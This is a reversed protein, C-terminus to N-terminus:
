GNDRSFRQNLWDILGAKGPPIEVQEVSDPKAGSWENRALARVARESSAWVQMNGEASDHLKALWVKM